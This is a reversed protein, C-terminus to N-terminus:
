RVNRAVIAMRRTSEVISAGPTAGPRQLKVTFDIGRAGFTQEFRLEGVRDAIPQAAGAGTDRVLTSSGDPQPALRFTHADVEVVQAGAAYALALPQRPTISRTAAATSGVTFVEYRGADAIVATAGRIFGCVDPVAPCRTASLFLAGGADSQDQQLLGQAANARPAITMLQRFRPEAPDADLLLVRDATRVSQAIADLVTRGRQQMEIAAPTQEFFAQLSPVTAAVTAALVATIATAILLELLSFGGYRSAGLRTM